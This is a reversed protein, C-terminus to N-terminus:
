LKELHSRLRTTLRECEKATSCEWELALGNRFHFRMRCGDRILSQIDTVNVVLERTTTRFVALRM